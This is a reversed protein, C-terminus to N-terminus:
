GVSSSAYFFYMSDVKESYAHNGMRIEPAMLGPTGVFTNAASINTECIKAVGFDCLKVASVNDASDKAVLVNGTKIDRHIIPPNSNHLFAIGKSIELAFKHVERPDNDYICNPNEMKKTLIGQLSYPCFEMFLILETKSFDYGLYRVINPHQARELIAVETKVANIDMRKTNQSLRLVKVACTYGELVCRYVAGFGGSGLKEFREAKAASFDPTLLSRTGGRSTSSRMRRVPSRIEEPTVVLNGQSLARPSSVSNQPSHAKQPPTSSTTRTVRQQLAQGAAGTLRLPVPRGFIGYRVVEMPFAPAHPVSMIGADSDM